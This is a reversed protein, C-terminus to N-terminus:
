CTLSLSHMLYRKCYLRYIRTGYFEDKEDIKINKAQKNFFLTVFLFPLTHIFNM